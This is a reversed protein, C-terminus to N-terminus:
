MTLQGIIGQCVQYALHTMDQGSHCVPLWRGAVLRHLFGRSTVLPYVQRWHRPM